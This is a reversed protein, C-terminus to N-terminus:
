MRLKKVVADFADPKVDQMPLYGGLLDVLAEGVDIPFFATLSPRFRKTPIMVLTNLPVGQLVGFAKFDEMPHLQDNIYLGQSSLVYLIEANGRHSYALLAGAMIPILVAFTWANMIFVASAMLAITVVAFGVYWLPSKTHHLYEVSRWQIPEVEPLKIPGEDAMPQSQEDAVPVDDVPQYYTSEADEQPSPQNPQMNKTYCSSYSDFIYVFINICM